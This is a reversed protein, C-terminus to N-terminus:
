LRGASHACSPRASEQPFPTGSFGACKGIFPWCLWPSLRHRVLISARETGTFSLPLPANVSMKKDGSQAAPTVGARKMEYERKRKSEILRVRFREAVNSQLPFSQRHGPHAVKGLAWVIWFANSTQSTMKSHIGGTRAHGYMM